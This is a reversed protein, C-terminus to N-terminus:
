GSFSMEQVNDIKVCLVILDPASPKLEERQWFEDLVIILTLSNEFAIDHSAAFWLSDHLNYKESFEKITYSRAHNWPLRGQFLLNELWAPYKESFLDSM